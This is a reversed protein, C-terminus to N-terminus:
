PLLRLKSKVNTEKKPLTFVVHEPFYAKSYKYQKDTMNWYVHRSDGTFSIAPLLGDIVNFDSRRTTVLKM